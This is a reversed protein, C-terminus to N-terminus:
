GRDKSVMGEMASVTASMTFHQFAACALVIVNTHGKTRMNENIAYLHLCYDIQSAEKASEYRIMHM